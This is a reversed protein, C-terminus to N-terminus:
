SDYEHIRDSARMWWLLKIVYIYTIQIGFMHDHIHERTWSTLFLRIPLTGFTTSFLFPM